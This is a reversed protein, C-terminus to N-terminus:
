IILGFEKWDKLLKTIDEKATSEEVIYEERIWNVLQNFTFDKFGIKLWLMAASENMSYINTMNINNNNSEVIMYNNGIKKLELNGNIKM